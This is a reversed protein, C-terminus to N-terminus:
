ETRLARVPQLTAARLAPYVGSALGMIAAFGFALGLLWLPPSVDIAAPPVGTQAAQRLSYVLALVSILRGALWGLGVGCLGGLIGIGTAEGLFTSLIDRNRAGIAKMLGIERTRELIAMTMTNAIGIAAVILAIAGVGGFGIQLLTFFGSIGEIVSAPTNAQYGLANIDDAIDQANAPDDVEVIAMAYGDRNRNIRRGFYWQNYSEVEDLRMFMNYDAEGRTEALVGVVKLQISRRIETGDNTWKMLTLRITQDQLEPPPSPEQGPQQRPNYFNQPVRSGIVVEGREPVLTGSTLRYDLRDLMDPPVGFISGWGELVGFRMMFPPQMYDRPYVAIAGPLGALEVLTNDTILKVNPDVGPASGGGGSSIVVGEFPVQNYGPWVQIQTLENIGWLQQTANRQMAMGLSVLVVVSATGIVVGIATMAVRGKNRALNDLAFSLLDTLRM